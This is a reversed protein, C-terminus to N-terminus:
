KKAPAPKAKVEAMVAAVDKEALGKFVKRIKMKDYLVVIVDATPDLDYNGKQLSPLGDLTLLVRTLDGKQRRIEDARAARADDEAFVDPLADDHFVAAAMLRAKPNDGVYTDLQKLLSQVPKWRPASNFDANKVFVLVGPDLGHECLPCHFKGENKGNAVNFPRFPGPLDAGEKLGPKADPPAAPKDDARLVAAALLAAVACLTVARPHM